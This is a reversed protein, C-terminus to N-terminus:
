VPRASGRRRDILVAELAAVDEALELTLPERRAIYDKLGAVVGELDVDKFDEQLSATLNASATEFWRIGGSQLRMGYRTGDSVYETADPWPLLDRVELGQSDPRPLYFAPPLEVTRIDGMEAEHPSATLAWAMDLQPEALVRAQVAQLRSKLRDRDIGDLHAWIVAELALHSAVLRADSATWDLDSDLRAATASRADFAARFTESQEEPQASAASLRPVHRTARDWSEFFLLWPEPHDAL